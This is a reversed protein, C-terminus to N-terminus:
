TELVDNEVQEVQEVQLYGREIMNAVLMAFDEFTFSEPLPLTGRAASYVEEPTRRGDFKAIMHMMWLDIRSAAPFPKELELVVDAPVLCAQQVSHTVKAQLHPSLSPRLRCITQTLEGSAEKRSRWAHWGLAWDFSRGDTLTGLRLRRTVPRPAASETRALNKRQIVIAGYVNRELGASRFLENWDTQRSPENARNLEVVKKAIEEPSTERHLAFIVDFEDQRDKLWRRAREEFLGEKSDWGACVAYLTGGPRLCHPLGEVIRRMLMEGTEGSDRYILAQSSSPVYPPHAVIRDFRRGEVAGYLDGQVVEVNSCGNLRQNFQAFHTARSTIDCAVVRKVSRSLVLAAIGSGSCLDLADAAPSTSIVRLFRLTGEYIAPFVIDAMRALESGDPNKGRDSAILLAAVPYLWVPSYYMEVAHDTESGPAGIRILDLARLSRLALPELWREVEKRPMSELFLFLRIFLGLPGSLATKERNVSGIDSMNEIGFMRCITVEDFHSRWLMSQVRAFDEASGLRLPFEQNCSGDLGSSFIPSIPAPSTLDMPKVFVRKEQGNRRSTPSPPEEFPARPQDTPRGKSASLHEFLEHLLEMAPRQSPEDPHGDAWELAMILPVWRIFRASSEVKDFRALAPWIKFPLKVQEVTRESPQACNRAPSTVLYERCTIPRDAYISCSEEELFPCPIGQFFYNLGLSQVEGEGWQEPHLLKELLGSEELRRRAETFRNRINSRRPEPLENVLNRIHRAEVESIPVLQRCCAGCGKKCSIKEGSKEVAKISANVVADAVTQVLPLLEEIRMPEKPVSVTTSLQWEPGSLEVRASEMEPSSKQIGTM